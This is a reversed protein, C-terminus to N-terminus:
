TLYVQAPGESIICMCFTCNFIFAFFDALTPICAADGRGINKGKNKITCKTHTNNALTWGLDIEPLPVAVIIFVKYLLM